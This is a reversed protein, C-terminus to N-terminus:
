RGHEVSDVKRHQRAYLLPTARLGDVLLQLRCSEDPKEAELLLYFAGLAFTTGIGGIVSRYAFLRTRDHHDTTLEAGLAGYPVGFVTASTTLLLLGMAVWATIWIGQLGAPPAWLLVISVALAIGGVLMWPRRRGMRSQTRDSYYGAVPDSVADWLRSFGVLLGLVGPAVFLVDTAFKFFYLGILINPISLGMAPLGYVLVTRLPLRPSSGESVVGDEARDGASM